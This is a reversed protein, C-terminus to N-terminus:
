IRLREGYREFMGELDSQVAEEFASIRRSIREAHGLGNEEATAPDCVVEDMLAKLAIFLSSHRSLPVWVKKQRLKGKGHGGSRGEGWDETPQKFQLIRLNHDDAQTIRYQGYEWIVPEQHLSKHSHTTM